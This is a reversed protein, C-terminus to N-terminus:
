ASSTQPPVAKLYLALLYNVTANLQIYEISLKNMM